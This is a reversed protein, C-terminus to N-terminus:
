GLLRMEDVCQVPLGYATLDSMFADASIYVPVTVQILHRNTILHPSPKWELACLNLAKSSGQYMDSLQPLSGAVLHLDDMWAVHHFPRGTQLVWGYLATDWTPLVDRLAYDFLSCWRRPSASSGQLLARRLPGFEAM